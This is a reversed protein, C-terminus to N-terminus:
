AVSDFVYYSSEPVPSSSIPVVDNRVTIIVWNCNESILISCSTTFILCVGLAGTGMAGFRQTALRIGIVDARM